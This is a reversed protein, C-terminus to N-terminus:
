IVFLNFSSLKQTELRNWMEIAPELIPPRVISWWPLGGTSGHLSMYDSVADGVKTKEDTRRLHKTRPLIEPLVFDLNVSDRSIPCTVDRHKTWACQMTPRRPRWSRRIETTLRTTSNQTFVLRPHTQPTPKNGNTSAKMWCWVSLNFVCLCTKCHCYIFFLKFESWILNDNHVVDSTIAIV